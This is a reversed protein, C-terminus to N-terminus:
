RNYVGLVYAYLNQQAYIVVTGLTVVKYFNCCMTATVEHQVMDEWVNDFFSGSWDFHNCGYIDTFDTFLPGSPDYSSVHMIIDDHWHVSTAIDSKLVCIYLTM